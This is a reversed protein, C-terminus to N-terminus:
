SRKWACETHAASELLLVRAILYARHPALQRM